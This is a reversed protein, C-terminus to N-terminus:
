IQILLIEEMKGGNQWGNLSQNFKYVRSIGRAFIIQLLTARNLKKGRLFIDDSM